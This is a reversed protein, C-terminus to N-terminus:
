RRKQTNTRTVDNEKLARKEAFKRFESSLRETTAPNAKPVNREM